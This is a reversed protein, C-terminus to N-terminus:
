WSWSSPYFTVQFSSTWNTQPGPALIPALWKEYQISGSVSIDNHLPWDVKVSGDNLTEGGPIFDRAVKAHRYAAQISRRPGFWYTSWGQFGMGERGIWDGIINNKNTYLDHYFTDFYVFQGSNSGPTPLATYVAEARLDLKPLGPVHSLYIGPRFADRPVDRIPSPDDDSLSDTYITLWNRVFPLRYSFDFGGTRKGPNNNSAYLQSSHFFGTYSHWLAAPTIARGVGGFEATRSFGFELNPTPKFSIKEGHILPRAPFENGSLKGAFLDWKMPGLWHFIWPLAFPTMRSARFMYIPEANDSFILAGGEGPGWWLSQKGFALNWGAFNAAAYTDLLTFRTVAAFPTAPQVPNLDNTAIAQRAALSYAPAFPAHQFEGRVYLTFRGATGYGSFGDYSNFGEQYPRGYNNIITQGFHHSDNLPQGHIGTTGAYLSELRVAQADEKTETALRTSIAKLNRKWRTISKHQAKRIQRM